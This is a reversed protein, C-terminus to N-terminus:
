EYDSSMFEDFLQPAEDIVSGCITVGVFTGREVGKNFCKSMDSYTYNRTMTSPTNLQQEYDAVFQKALLYMDETIMFKEKAM